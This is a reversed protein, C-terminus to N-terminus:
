KVVRLDGGMLRIRESFGELGQRGLNGKILVRRSVYVTSLNAAWLSILVFSACGAHQGDDLERRCSTTHQLLPSSSTLAGRRPLVPSSVTALRGRYAQVAAALGRVVDCTTLRSVGGPRAVSALSTSKQKETATGSNDVPRSDPDALV